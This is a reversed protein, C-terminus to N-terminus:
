SNYRANPRAGGIGLLADVLESWCDKLHPLTMERVRRQYVVLEAALTGLLVDALYDVDPRVGAERLLATVHARYTGYVPHGLRGPVGRDAALLVEGVIEVTDLLGHGFAVLRERVPAGPGLPSPGRIFGEQFAREREDLLARMLGARDGFRRFLTGKGVGAAGAVEDMTVAQPGQGAVLREAAALIALRNRAADAREGSGADLVPLEAPGSRSSM